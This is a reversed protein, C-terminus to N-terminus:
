ADHEPVEFARAVVTECLLNRPLCGAFKITKGFAALEDDTLTVADSCVATLMSAPAHGGQRARAVRDEQVM